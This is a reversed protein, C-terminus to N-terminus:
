FIKNIRSQPKAAYAPQSAFEIKSQRDLIAECLMRDGTYTDDMTFYDIAEYSIM